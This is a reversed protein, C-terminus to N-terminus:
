VVRTLRHVTVEPRVNFRVHRLNGLGCNIYLRRGDTLSIEGASYRKNRVPLIPPPLFPPKCQGGHTHGALVWGRYGAWGDLDVSDPNHSLVITANDNHLNAMAAALDFRPCWLDDVGIIDLGRVNTLQNHLVQIGAEAARKEVKNAVEIDRWGYGYDHNGLVAFTAVEGHPWAALVRTLEDLVGHASYTVFDGTFVVIHPKLEAVRRLAGILYDSDVQPGVHLDSLHVLSQGELDPPLNAIPLTRRIIRVWQPEVRWTYVGLAGASILAGTGIKVFRRRTIKM